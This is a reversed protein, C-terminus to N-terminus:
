MTSGPVQPKLVGLDRDQALEQQAAAREGEVVEVAGDLPGVHLALHLAHEGIAITSRGGM